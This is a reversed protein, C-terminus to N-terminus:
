ISYTCCPCMRFYVKVFLILVLLLLCFKNLILLSLTATLFLVEIKQFLRADLLTLQEAIQESKFEILRQCRVSVSMYVSVCVSV